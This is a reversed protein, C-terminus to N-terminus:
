FRIELIPKIPPLRLEEPVTEAFPTRMVESARLNLLDIEPRPLAARMQNILPEHLPLERNIEAQREDWSLRGPSDMHNSLYRREDRPASQDRLMAFYNQVIQGQQEPLFDFFSRDPTILYEYAANRSGTSIAGAIQTALSVSIYSTGGHQYQWVHTMEHIFTEAMGADAITFDEPVRITNGVTRYELVDTPILRVRSYDISNAFVGRALEAERSTLPRGSIAAGVTSVQTVLEEFVPSRVSIPSTTGHTRRQLSPATHEAVWNTMGPRAIVNVAAQEAEMETRQANLTSDSVIEASPKTASQQIAHTLEHALLKQGAITGPMYQNAGFVINPGVTYALANVALASGAARADTHVRIKGFDHGFRPEMVARTAPDLPQGSSQLAEHVVPPVTALETEGTDSRQLSLSKKRCAECEGNQGASNGCACKRQLLRAPIPMSSLVSKIKDFLM